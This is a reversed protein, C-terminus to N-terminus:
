RGARGGRRGTARHQRQGQANHRSGRTGAPPTASPGRRPAPPTSPPPTQALAAGPLVTALALVGGLVGALALRSQTGRM